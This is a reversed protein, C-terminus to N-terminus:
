TGEPCWFPPDGRENRAAFVLVYNVSGTWQYRGNHYGLVLLKDLTFNQGPSKRLYVLSLEPPKHDDVIVGLIHSRNCPVGHELRRATFCKMNRETNAGPYSHAM